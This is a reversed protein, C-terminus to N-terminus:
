LSWGERYERRVYANAEPNNTVEMKLGDWLLKQYPFRVALNGMLVMESLPGSYNFNSSAQKGGKCARVWDMTHGSIGDPIRDISPEPQNYEKMQTEPILRPNEGYCGTMIIGKYGM